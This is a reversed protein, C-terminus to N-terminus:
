LGVNNIYYGNTWFKGGWLFNKVELHYKFIERATISKIIQIISKLAITSVKQALFHFVGDRVCCM